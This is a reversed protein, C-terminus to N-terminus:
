GGTLSNSLNNLFDSQNGYAFAEIYDAVANIENENMETKEQSEEIEPSSPCGTFILLSCLVIIFIYKAKKM